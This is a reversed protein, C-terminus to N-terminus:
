DRGDLAPQQEPRQGGVSGNWEGSVPFAFLCGGFGQHLVAPLFLFDHNEMEVHM